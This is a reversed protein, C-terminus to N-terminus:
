HKFDYRLMLSQQLNIPHNLKVSAESEARAIPFFRTTIQRTQLQPFRGAALFSNLASAVSPDIDSGNQGRNHEQEVAAHFFTRNKVIPGGISSGIRYRNFDPKGPATEIPDRADLSANQVFIYADGHVVNAGTAPSWMSRAAQLGVTNRRCGM